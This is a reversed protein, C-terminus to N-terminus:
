PPSYEGAPASRSQDPNPRSPERSIKTLPIERVAAETSQKRQKSMDLSEEPASAGYLTEENLADLHGFAASPICNAVSPGVVVGQRHSAFSDSTPINASRGPRFGCGWCQQLKAPGFEIPKRRMISPRGNRPQPHPIVANTTYLYVFMELSHAKDNRNEPHLCLDSVRYRTPRLHPPAHLNRKVDSTPFSETQCTAALEELRSVSGSRKSRPV